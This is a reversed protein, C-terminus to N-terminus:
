GLSPNMEDWEVLLQRTHSWRDFEGLLVKMDAGILDLTLKPNFPSFYNLEDFVELSFLFSNKGNLNEKKRPM